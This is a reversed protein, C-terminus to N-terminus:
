VLERWQKYADMVIGVDEVSYPKQLVNHFGFTSYESMVQDDSYGSSVITYVDPFLRRISAIVEKGGLGGPVTLDLVVIDINQESISLMDLAEAGDAAFVVMYGMYKFFEGAAERVLVEDDMVLVKGEGKSLTASQKKVPESLTTNVLAPLYCVCETGKGKESYIKFIGNHKKIISFSTTLGLGSGNEKTTFYPDFIKEMNEKDIGSGNDKIAIRIYNDVRAEEPLKDQACNEAVVTLIGDRRMSQKANLVLNGIVQAIQNEDYEAVWLDDQVQFVTKLSSGRMIFTVSEILTKGINGVRKMPAGGKAFTLLQGALNKAHESAREASELLRVANDNEQVHLKALSINGYIATLINNFDHAIGGALVGISELKEAKQAEAELKNRLTVDRIVIVVGVIKRSDNIIPSASYEIYKRHGQIDSLIVPRVSTPAQGTFVEKIVNPIPEGTNPDRAHFFDSLVHGEPNETMGFLEKAVDNCIVITGLIDTAIVGDGIARITVRLREREEAFALENEKEETIDILISYWNSIVGSADKLAWTQDLVWRTSGEKTLIRYEQLYDTRNERAFERAEEVIREEDAPHVILYEGGFTTYFDGPTYGFRSINESVFDVRLRDTIKWRIFISASRNFLMEYESMRRKASYLKQRSRYQKTIDVILGECYEGNHDDFIIGRDYLWLEEGNKHISKFIIQYKKRKKSASQLLELVRAQEDPHVLQMYSTGPFYFGKKHGTIGKLNGTIFTFIPENGLTMRYTIGQMNHLIHEYHDIQKKDCGANGSPVFLFLLQSPKIHNVPQAFVLYDHFVSGHCYNFKEAIIPIGRKLLRLFSSIGKKFEPLADLSFTGSAPFDFATTCQASWHLLRRSHTQITFMPYVSGAYTWLKQIRDEARSREKAIDTIDSAIGLIGRVGNETVFPTKSIRLVYKKGCLEVEEDNSVSDNERFAQLDREFFRQAQSKPIIEFLSKQAFHEETIGLIDRYKKNAYILSNSSDKIFILEPLADFARLLACKEDRIREIEIRAQRLEEQLEQIIRKEDSM